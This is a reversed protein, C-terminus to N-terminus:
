RPLMRRPSKPVDQNVWWGIRFSMRRSSGGDSSSTTIAMAIL